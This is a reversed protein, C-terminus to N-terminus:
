QRKLDFEKALEKITTAEAELFKHSDEIGLVQPVFGAAEM